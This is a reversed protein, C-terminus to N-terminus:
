PGPMRNGSPHADRRLAFPEIPGALFAFGGLSCTRWVAKGLCDPLPFTRHPMVLLARAGGIHVMECVGLFFSGRLRERKSLYCPLQRGVPPEPENPAAM